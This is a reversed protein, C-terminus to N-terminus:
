KKKKLLMGLAVVILIVPWWPIAVTIVNLEALLWLVGIVLLLFAFTPFNGSSCIQKTKRKAM